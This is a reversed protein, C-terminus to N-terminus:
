PHREFQENTTDISSFMTLLNQGYVSRYNRTTAGGAATSKRRTMVIGNQQRMADTESPILEM